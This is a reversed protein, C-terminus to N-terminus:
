RKWVPDYRTHVPRAPKRGVDWRGDDRKRPRVYYDGSELPTAVLLSPPVRLLKSALFRAIGAEQDQVGAIRRGGHIADRITELKVIM